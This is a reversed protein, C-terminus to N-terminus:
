NRARYTRVIERGHRGIFTLKFLRVGRNYFKKGVNMASSRNKVPIGNIKILIDGSQIGFGALKKPVRRFGVGRVRRTTRKLDPTLHPYSENIDELLFDELVEIPNKEILNSDKISIMIVGKVNKTEDGPDVYPVEKNRNAPGSKIGNNPGQSSSLLTDLNKGGFIETLYVTEELRADPKSPDPDARSFVVAAEQTIWEARVDKYPEYLADGLKLDQYIPAGPLPDQEAGSDGIGSGVTGPDAAGFDVSRPARVNPDLHRIKIRADNGGIVLILTLVEKLPTSNYQPAVKVNGAQEPTEIVPPPTATWNAEFVTEWWKQQRGSYDWSRDVDLNSKGQLIAKIRKEIALKSYPVGVWKMDRKQVVEYVLGTGLGFSLLYLVIGLSETRM